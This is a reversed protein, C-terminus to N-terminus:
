LNLLKKLTEDPYFAYRKENYIIENPFISADKLPFQATVKEILGYRTTEVLTDEYLIYTKSFTGQKLVKNAYVAALVVAALEFFWAAPIVSELAFVLGCFVLIGALSLITGAPSKPLLALGKYLVEKDTM